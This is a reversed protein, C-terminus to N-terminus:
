NLRRTISDVTGGALQAVMVCSLFPLLQYSMIMLSIDKPAWVLVCDCARRVWGQCGV